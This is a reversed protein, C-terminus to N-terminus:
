LRSFIYKENVIYPMEAVLIYKLVNLYKAYLIVSKEYLEIAIYKIRKIRIDDIGIKKNINTTEVKTIYEISIIREYNFVFSSYEEYVHNRLFDM